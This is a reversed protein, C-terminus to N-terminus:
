TYCLTAGPMMSQSLCVTPLITELQPAGKYAKGEGQARGSMGCLETGLNYLLNDDLQRCKTRSKCVVTAPPDGLHCNALYPARLCRRDAQTKGPVREFPSEVLSFM